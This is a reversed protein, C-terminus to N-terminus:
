VRQGHFFFETVRDSFEHLLGEPFHVDRLATLLQEYITQSKGQELRMQLAPQVCIQKCFATRTLGLTQRWLVVPSYTMDVDPLSFPSFQDEFKARQGKVFELYDSHIQEEDYGLDVCERVVSRLPTPHVGCETLYLAQYHVNCRDAFEKITKHERLRIIRIPNESLQVRM